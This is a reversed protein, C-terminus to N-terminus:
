PLSILREPEGGGPGCGSLTELATVIRTAGATDMQPPICAAMRNRGAPDAWLTAATHALREAPTGASSGENMGGNMGDDFVAVARCWGAAAAARAAPEQNKAVVALVAPVRMAALETLTGGGASLALGATAMQAGMEQCDVLIRASPRHQGSWAAIAGAQPNGAGIIVCLPVTAPLYRHLAHLCPLTLGAPDSGGFTLLLDPRAAPPPLVAAAAARIGARLPLFAPGSLYCQGPRLAAAPPPAPESAPHIILDPELMPQGNIQDDFAAMKYGGAGEEGTEARGGACVAARWAPSLHYGDMLLVTAPNQRACAITAPADSAAPQGSELPPLPFLAVGERELRSALAAPLAACALGTQWGRLRAEQAIALCRMVHGTGMAVTADARILLVPM